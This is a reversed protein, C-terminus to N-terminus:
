APISTHNTSCAQIYLQDLEIDYVHCDAILVYSWHAVPKVLEAMVFFENNRVSQITYLFTLHISISVFFEKFSIHVCAITAIFLVTLVQAQTGFCVKYIM